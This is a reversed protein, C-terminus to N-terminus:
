TVARSLVCRLAALSAPYLTRKRSKSKPDAAIYPSIVLSQCASIPRLHCKSKVAACNRRHQIGTDLDQTM